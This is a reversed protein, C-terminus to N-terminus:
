VVSKRDLLKSATHVADKAPKSMRQAPTETVATEQELYALEAGSGLAAREPVASEGFIPSEMTSELPHEEGKETDQKGNSPNQASAAKGLQAYTLGEARLWRAVDPYLISRGGVPPMKGQLPRSPMGPMAGAERPTWGEGAPVTAHFSAPKMPSIGPAPSRRFAAGTESVTLPVTQGSIGAKLDGATPAEEKVPFLFTRTRHRTGPGELRIRLLHERQERERQREIEIVRELIRIEPSEKKKGGPQPKQEKRLADLIVKLELNIHYLNPAPTDELEGEELFELPFERYPGIDHGARNLIGAAFAQSLLGFPSLGLRNRRLVAMDPKTVAITEM